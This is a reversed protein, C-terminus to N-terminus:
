YRHLSTTTWFNQVSYPNILSFVAPWLAVTLVAVETVDHQLQLPDAIDTVYCTEYFGGNRERNQM